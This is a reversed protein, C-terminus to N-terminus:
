RSETTSFCLIKKRFVSGDNCKVNYEPIYGTEKLILSTTRMPVWSISILAEWTKDTKKRHIAIAVALFIKRHYRLYSITKVFYKNNEKWM